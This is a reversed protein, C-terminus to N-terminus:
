LLPNNWNISKKFEELLTQYTFYDSLLLYGNEADFTGDPYFALVAWEDVNRAEVTVLVRGYEDSIFYRIWRDDSFHEDGPFVIEYFPQIQDFSLPIPGKSSIQPKCECKGEQIETNWDNDTKLQSIANESFQESPSSIFNIDSYFCVENESYYQQIVISYTSVNNGEYYFFLKRGYDDTELLEIRPNEIIESSFYGLTNPISFMVVSFLDGYDGTYSFTNTTCGSLLTLGIACFLILIKKM